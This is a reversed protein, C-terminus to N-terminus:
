LDVMHLRDDARGSAIWVIRSAPPHWAFERSRVTMTRGDSRYIRFPQFPTAEILEDFQDVLMLPVRSAIAAIRRSTLASHRASRDSRETTEAKPRLQPM